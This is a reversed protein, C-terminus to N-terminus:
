SKHILTMISHAPSGISIQTNLFSLNFRILKNSSNMIVTNTEGNTNVAALVDLEDITSESYVRISGPRIYRSFHGLYYYSNQYFLQGTKTDAIIPSSCYNGTHNPGGQEDLILNWDIWAVTWRNLDNIISKAYREGLDWSGIHPGGEQCGETFILQKTPYADHLKQVNDFHDGCYWHFGTGWVYKAAEHDDFVVKAREFMQDRNHDWIVVNIHSLNAKHLAPGLYDRVFDREEEASYLCSDWVQKAEPENQVSIGWIPVGADAYKKIYQCYYQAWVGAYESILEGGNNMQGNTKMWAPPSWPSALLKLQNQTTDLALQIFPILANHDRSINFQTLETDGASEDYAYNGLSFDCSNIHTRGFTYGNGSETSFYAKIIERQVSEPMKYFTTAASETFAGGFGLITQFKQNNDIRIEPLDPRIPDVFSESPLPSLRDTTDKTTIFGSLHITNTM